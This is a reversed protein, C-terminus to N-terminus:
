KIGTSQNEAEDYNGKSNLSNTIDGDGDDDPNPISEAFKAFLNNPNCDSSDSVLPTCNIRTPNGDTVYNHIHNEIEKKEL